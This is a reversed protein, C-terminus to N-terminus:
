RWDGSWGGASGAVDLEGAANGAGPVVGEGVSGNLAFCCCSSSSSFM